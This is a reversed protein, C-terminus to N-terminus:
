NVWWSPPNILSTTGRWHQSPNSLPTLTTTPSCCSTPHHLLLIKLSHLWKSTQKRGKSGSSIDLKPPFFFLYPLHQLHLSSFFSNPHRSMQNQHSKATEEMFLPIYLCQIKKGRQLSVSSHQVWLHAFPNEKKPSIVRCNSFQSSFHKRDLPTWHFQQLVSPIWFFLM